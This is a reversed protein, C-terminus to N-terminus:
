RRHSLPLYQDGDFEYSVAPADAGCVPRSKWLTEGTNAMSRWSISPSALLLLGGAANV